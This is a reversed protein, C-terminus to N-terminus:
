TPVRDVPRTGVRAEGGGVAVSPYMSSGTSNSVGAGRASGASLEAWSTGDFRRVYVEFNGSSDDSWAVVPKGTADLALQPSAALGAGGSVGTDGLAGAGMEVWSTGDFRAVFVSAWYSNGTTWAVVPVDGAGIVVAPQRSFPAPGSM